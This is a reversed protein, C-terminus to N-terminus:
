RSAAAGNDDAPGDGSVDQTRAGRGGGVVAALRGSESLFLGAAGDAFRLVDVGARLSYRGLRGALQAVVAPPLTGFLPSQMLLQVQAGPPQVAPAAAAERSALDGAM